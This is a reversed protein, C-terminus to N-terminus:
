SSQTVSAQLGGIKMADDYSPPPLEEWKYEPPPANDISIVFVNANGVGSTQSTRELRGNRSRHQRRTRATPAPNSQASPFLTSAAQQRIKEQKNCACLLFALLLVGIVIALVTIEISNM